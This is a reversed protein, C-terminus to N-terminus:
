VEKRAAPEPEDNKRTAPAAYNKSNRPQATAINTATPPLSESDPM